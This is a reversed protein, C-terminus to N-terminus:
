ADDNGKGRKMVRSNEEPVPEGDVYRALAAGPSFKVAKRPPVVITEGNQPNRAKREGYARVKLSGFGTLRVNEREVIERILSCLVADVMWQADNMAVGNDSAVREVLNRKNGAM